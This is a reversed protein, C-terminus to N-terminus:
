RSQDVLKIIMRGAAREEIDVQDDVASEREGNRVRQRWYAAREPRCAGLAEIAITVATKAGASEVQGYNTLCSLWAGKEAAAPASPSQAATALAIVYPFLM